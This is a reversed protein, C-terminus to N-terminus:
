RAIRCAARHEYYEKVNKILLANSDYGHSQFIKM